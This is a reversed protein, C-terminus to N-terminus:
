PTKQKAMQELYAWLQKMETASIASEPFHVVMQLTPWSRVSRPDRVLKEFAKPQWYETPNMPLNLDPGMEASGQGNMKHCAFCNKTFVQFGQKADASSTESPHILPYTERLSGKVTFSALQFPWEETGINSAAANKWILYFPGASGKKKKVIPWPKKPDEVALYAIAKNPDKSLLKDKDIPASFKDLCTFQLMEGDKFKVDKLLESVPIAQFVTLKNKYTVDYGIHVPQTKKLLESTTWQLKKDHSQITFTSEARAFSILLILLLQM